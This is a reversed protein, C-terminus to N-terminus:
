REAHRVALDNEGTGGTFNYRGGLILEDGFRIDLSETGEGECDGNNIGGVCRHASGVGRLRTTRLFSIHLANGIIGVLCAGRVAASYEIPPCDLVAVRCQRAIGIPVVDVASLITSDTQQVAAYAAEQLNYIHPNYILGVRDSWGVDFYFFGIKRHKPKTREFGLDNINGIILHLDAEVLLDYKDRWM